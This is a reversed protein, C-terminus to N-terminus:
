SSRSEGCPTLIDLGDLREHHQLVIQAVDGPFAIGKLIEYGARSHEEIFNMELPSLIGPKTLIEAPVRLKGIDHVMAAIEIARVEETALGMDEAV